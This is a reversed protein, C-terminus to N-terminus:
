EDDEVELSWELFKPVFVADAVAFALLIYRLTGEFYFIAIFAIIAGGSLGALHRYLPNEFLHTETDATVGM